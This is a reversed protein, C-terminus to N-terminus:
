ADIGPAAWGVVGNLLASPSSNLASALRVFTVLSLDEAGKEIRDIAAPDMDILHGIEELSRGAGVRVAHINAGISTVVPDLPEHSM